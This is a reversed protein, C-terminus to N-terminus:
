IEKGFGQTCKKRRRYMVCAQGLENEENKNDLSTHKEAGEERFGEAKSRRKIL